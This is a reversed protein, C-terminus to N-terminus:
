QAVPLTFHITTGGDLSSEAWTRGGHTTVISKAVALGMGTGNYRRSTSADIQYLPEFISSLKERPIGIGGDSISTKIKSNEKEVKVLVEGGNERSFKIANNLINQFAKKLALPNGNVKPLEEPISLDIAINRKAAYREMEGIAKPIVDKLELETFHPGVLSANYYAATVFDEVINNLSDVANLAMSYLRAQEERSNHDRALQVSAKIITLPTKLEHTVNSLIDNKLRQIISNLSEAYRDELVKIIDSQTIIGMIEGNNDVVPLSRIKNQIMIGNAEYLSSEHSITIVPCSMVDRLRMCAIENKGSALTSLDRGSLIGVPRNDEEVIICSIGYKDMKSLAEPLLEDRKCKVVNRTMVQAVRKAEIFFGMTLNNLIDRQTVVGFVDGGYDTVVLHRINNSTLLNYAEYIDMEREVTLVKKTMVDKIMLGQRHLRNVVVKVLDKETFVGVPKKGDTVVLCSMKHDKMLSVAMSIPTKPPVAVLKSTLVDGICREKLNFGSSCQQIVMNGLAEHEIQTKPTNLSKNM